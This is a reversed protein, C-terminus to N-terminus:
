RFSPNKIRKVTYDGITVIISIQPPVGNAIFRNGVEKDVDPQTSSRQKAPRQEPSKRGSRDKQKRRKQNIFLLVPEKSFPNIDKRGYTRSSEDSIAIRQLHFLEAINKSIQFILM